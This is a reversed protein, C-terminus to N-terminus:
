KIKKVQKNKSHSKRSKKNKIIPKEEEDEKKGDKRISPNRPKSIKILYDKIDEL